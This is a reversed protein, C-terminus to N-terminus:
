SVNPRGAAALLEDYRHHQGRARGEVCRSIRERPSMPEPVWWEPHTLVHVRDSGAELVDRASRHRWLGNSDSCYVFRERLADGYVNVMGAIEDRNDAWNAYEPNHVSFAEIPREHLRELLAREHALAEDPAERAFGPDFHLGLAHGLAAIQVILRSVTPELANYFDSHLHLFFTSHVGLDAEIRALALARHVSFDVDHRWLVGDSAASADAFSLFRYRDRALEVLSRYEAETFDPHSM